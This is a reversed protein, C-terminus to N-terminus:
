HSSSEFFLRFCLVCRVIELDLRFYQFGWIHRTNLLAPESQLRVTFGELSLDVLTEYLPKLTEIVEFSPTAM